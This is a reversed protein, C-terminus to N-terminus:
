LQDVQDHRNANKTRQCNPRDPRSAQAPNNTRGVRLNQLQATQSRQAGPDWSGVDSLFLFDCNTKQLRAVEFSARRALPGGVKIQRTSRVGRGNLNRLVAMNVSPADTSRSGM